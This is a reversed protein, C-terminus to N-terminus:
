IHFGYQRALELPMAPVRRQRTATAPGSFNV